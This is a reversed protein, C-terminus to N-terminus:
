NQREEESENEQSTSICCSRVCHQLNHQDKYGQKDYIVSMQKDFPFVWFNISNWNLERRTRHTERDNSLGDLQKDWAIVRYINVREDSFSDLPITAANYTTRIM